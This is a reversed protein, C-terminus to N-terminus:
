ICSAFSSRLSTIQFFFDDVQRYIALNKIYQPREQFNIFTNGDRTYYCQGNTHFSFDKRLGEEIGNKIKPPLIEEVYDILLDGKVKDSMQLISFIQDRLYNKFKDLEGGISKYLKICRVIFPRQPKETASAFICLLNEDLMDDDSLPIKDSGEKTNTSLDYTKKGEIIAEEKSYEGNFDYFLFKANERFKANDKFSVFLQRYIKALTYSKGSGTNGFIGIHSAFM